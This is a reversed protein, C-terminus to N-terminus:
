KVCSIRILGTYLFCTVLWIDPQSTERIDRSYLFGARMHWIWMLEPWSTHAHTHPSFLSIRVTVVKVQWESCSNGVGGEFFSCFIWAKYSVSITKDNDRMGDEGVRISMWVCVLSRFYVFQAIPWNCDCRSLRCFISCWTSTCNWLNIFLSIYVFNECLDCFCKDNDDHQFNFISIEWHLPISPSSNACRGM